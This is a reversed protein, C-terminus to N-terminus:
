VYTPASPARPNGPSIEAQDSTLYATRVRKKQIRCESCKEQYRKAKSGEGMEQFPDCLQLFVFVSFHRIISM